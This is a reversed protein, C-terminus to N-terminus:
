KKEEMEKWIKYKERWPKVENEIKKDIEKQNKIQSKKFEQKIMALLKDIKVVIAPELDIMEQKTAFIYMSQMAFLSKHAYNWDYEDAGPIVSGIAQSVYFILDKVSSRIRRATDWQEDLVDKTFETQDFMYKSLSTAEKWIPNDRLESDKSM